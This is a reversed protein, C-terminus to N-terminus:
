TQTGVVVWATGTWLFLKQTGSAVAVVVTPDGAGPATTPAADLVTLRVGRLQAAGVTLRELIQNIQAVLTPLDSADVRLGAARVPQVPSSM